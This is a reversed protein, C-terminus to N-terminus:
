CFCSGLSAPDGTEGAEITRSFTGEQQKKGYSPTEGRSGERITYWWKILLSLWVNPLALFLQAFCASSSVICSATDASGCAPIQPGAKLVTLIDWTGQDLKNFLQLRPSTGPQLGHSGSGIWLSIVSILKLFVSLLGKIIWNVEDANYCLRLSSLWLVNKTFM